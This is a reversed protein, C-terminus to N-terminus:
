RSQRARARQEAGHNAIRRYADVEGPHAHLEHARAARLAALKDARVLRAGCTVCVVVTSFPTSDVRIPVPGLRGAVTVTFPTM